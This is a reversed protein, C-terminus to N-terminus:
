NNDDDVVEYDADVVNDDPAAQQAADAGDQPQQQYLKESIAYFAQTVTETAKKIAEVDNGKLKEKLDAIASEIPAKEEATVKDGLDALTKESQYVM